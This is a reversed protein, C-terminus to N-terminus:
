AGLSTRSAVGIKSVLARMISQELARSATGNKEDLERLDERDWERLKVSGRAVTDASATDGSVFSMEGLFDGPGLQRVTQGNVQVDVIGSVILALRDYAVDQSTLVRDKYIVYCGKEWIANFDVRDLDAFVNVRFWEETPSGAGVRRSRAIRLLNVIHLTATLVNWFVMSWIGALVGYTIFCWSGALVMLRLWLVTRTFTSCVLVVYAFNLVVTAIM